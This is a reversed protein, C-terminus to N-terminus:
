GRHAKVVRHVWSYNSNTLRAIEGVTKGEDALARIIDSKNEEKKPVETKADIAGYVFSYHSQTARSIDGM